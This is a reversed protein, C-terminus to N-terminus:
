HPSVQVYQWTKKETVENPQQDGCLPCLFGSLEKLLRPPKPFDALQVGILSKTGKSTAISDRDQDQKFSAGITRGTTMVSKSEAAGTKRKKQVPQEAMENLDTVSRSSGSVPLDQTAEVQSSAVQSSQTNDQGMSEVLASYYSMRRWRLLMTHRLRHRLNLEKVQWHPHSNLKWDLNRCFERSLFGYDGGLPEFQEAKGDMKQRVHRRMQRSLRALRALGDNIRSSVNEDDNPWHEEGIRAKVSGLQGYDPDRLCLDANARIADLFQRVSARLVPNNRTQHDLSLNRSQHLFAERAWINFRILADRPWTLKQQEGRQALGELADRCDKGTDGLDTSADMAFYIHRHLEDCPRSHRHVHISYGYAGEVGSVDHLNAAGRRGLM